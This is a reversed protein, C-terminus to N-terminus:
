IISRDIKYNRHGLERRIELYVQDAKTLVQDPNKKDSQLIEFLLNTQKVVQNSGWLIIQNKVEKLLNAKMTDPSSNKLKSYWNIFENYAFVKGTSTLGHKKIYSRISASVLLACVIFVAAIIILPAKWHNDLINWQASLIKYGTFIGYGAGAIMAVLLLVALITGITKM